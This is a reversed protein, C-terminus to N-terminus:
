GHSVEEDIINDMYRDCEALLYRITNPVGYCEIHAQIADDLALSVRSGYVTSMDSLRLRVANIENM